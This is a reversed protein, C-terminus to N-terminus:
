VVIHRCIMMVVFSFLSSLLLFSGFLPSSCQQRVKKSICVGGFVVVVVVM